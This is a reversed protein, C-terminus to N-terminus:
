YIVLKKSSVKKSSNLTVFYIGKPFQEIAIIIGGIDKDVTTSYMKQGLMNMLVIETEGQVVPFELHVQTSAPNPYIKLASLLNLQITEMGVPVYPGLKVVWYDMGGHNMTVDGNDSKSEGAVIYGGDATTQISQALDYGNGGLCKQWQITGTSDLKVIWYDVSGNNGTVDSDNSYSEGAVICGGDITREVSNAFDYSSGGLCKQWQITGTSNLKVVWYDAGGHNGTVNSDNSQTFGAVIYCDDITQDVSTAEDGGNGGLSKEWEITGTSNLKVVWYDYNGHNGTVDGDNSGSRGAVIYGDILIKESCKDNTTQKVSTAEDDGTGGLSKQWEITGTSNLKVVWYDYFGHNGTVDGDHSNSFGAVISGGDTTTQISQARDDDTGGLCKQWILTGLSDLKIIWYDYFAHNGTVDGDYSRTFGAIIYGGDTTQDVSNAEDDGSGGFYKQWQLAGTSNLKVVWYDNDGHHGMVDGHLSNTYGVVIYGGDTTPLISKAVDSGSGGLSRQWQIAPSQAQLSLIGLSLVVGLIFNKCASSLSPVGSNLTWSSPGESLKKM